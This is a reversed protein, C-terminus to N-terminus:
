EVRREMIQLAVLRAVLVALFLQGCAAEMFAYIQAAPLQPTIDGYGLTTLTTFSFYITWLEMAQASQMHEPISFSGPVFHHFIAYIVAWLIGLIAYASVAGCITDTTISSATMVHRLISFFILLYYLFRVGLVVALWQGSGEANFVDFIGLGLNILSLAVMFYFFGRNDSIARLCSLLVVLGIVGFSKELIGGAPMLPVAFFMLAISGLM